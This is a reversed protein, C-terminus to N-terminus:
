VSRGLARAHGGAVLDDLDVPLRGFPPLVVLGHFREPALGARLDRDRHPARAHGIGELVREDAGLDVHARHRAARQEIATDAVDRQGRHRLGRGLLQAGLDAGHLALAHLRENEVEPEIGAPQEVLANKSSPFCVQGSSGITTRTFSPVALAASIMAPASCSWSRATTTPVGVKPLPRTWVSKGSPSPTASLSVVARQYVGLPRVM